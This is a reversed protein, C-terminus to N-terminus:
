LGLASQLVENLGEESIPKNVFFSAGLQFCRDKTTGQIDATLVAIPLSMGRKKLEELVQFGDMVPMLLDLFMLDYNKAVLLDLAAKGDNAEDLEVGKNGLLRRLSHRSLLSDDVILVKKQEAM